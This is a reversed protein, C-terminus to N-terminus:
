KAGQKRGPPRPPGTLPTAAPLIEADIPRPDFSALRALAEAPSIRLRRVFDILTWEDSSIASEPEEIPADPDYLWWDRIKLRRALAILEDTDLKSEGIKLKSIRTEGWDFEACVQKQTLGLRKRAHELRDWMDM